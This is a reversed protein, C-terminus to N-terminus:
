CKEPRSASHVDLCECFETKESDKASGLQWHLALLQKRSTLKGSDMCYMITQAGNM